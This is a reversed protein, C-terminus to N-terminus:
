ALGCEPDECRPNGNRELYQLLLTEEPRIFLHKWTIDPASTIILRFVRMLDEDLEPTLQRDDLYRREGYHFSPIYQRACRLASDLATFGNSNRKTLDAGMSIMRELLAYAEDAQAKTRQVLYGERPWRVNWRTCDVAARVADQVVPMRFDSGCDEPEIFNVDAGRDLLLHAIVFQGCKIAVQLPSQGIDKKPPAKATCAILEPKKDLLATVTQLDGQRIATFLKKM